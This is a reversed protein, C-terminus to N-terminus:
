LWSFARFVTKYDAYQVDFISHAIHLSTNCMNCQKYSKNLIAIFLDCNEMKESNLTISDHSIREDEKSEFTADFLPELKKILAKTEVKPSEHFLVIVRSTSDVISIEKFM